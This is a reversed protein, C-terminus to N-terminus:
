HWSVGEALRNRPRGSRWEDDDLRRFGAPVLKARLAPDALSRVVLGEAPGAGWASPGLLREVGDVTGAVGTWVHPPTTLGAAVCAADREDAMLFGTSARWLDLAVLYAPLRDYASSHTLLMWEAYLAWDDGLVMRLAGDHEAAWARLPGLQGARDMAGRGSRLAAEVRRDEMWLVVNAGDVKEEVLVPSGLLSAVASAALVLDDATGRGGVLHPIRPYPPPAKM